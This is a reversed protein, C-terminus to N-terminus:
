KFLLVPHNVTDFAKRLDLFLIFFSKLSTAVFLNLHITKELGFQMPHLLNEKILHDVLQEAVVMKWLM